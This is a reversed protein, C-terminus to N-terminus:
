FKLDAVMKAALLQNNFQRRLYKNALNLLRDSIIIISNLDVIFVSTRVEVFIQAGHQPSGAAAVLFNRKYQVLGVDQVAPEELSHVRQQGVSLDTKIRIVAM